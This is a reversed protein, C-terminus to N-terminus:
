VHRSVRHVLVGGDTEVHDAVVPAASPQPAQPTAPTNSTFSRAAAGGSPPPRSSSTSPAPANVVSSASVPKDVSRSSVTHSPEPNESVILQEGTKLGLSTLPLEPIITLTRPPYGSKVVIGYIRTDPPVSGM